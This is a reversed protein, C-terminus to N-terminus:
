RIRRVTHTVHTETGHNVWTTVLRGQHTGNQDTVPTMRAAQIWTRGFMTRRTVKLPSYRAM